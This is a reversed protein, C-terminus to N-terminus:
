LPHLMTICCISLIDELPHLAYMLAEWCPSECTNMPALFGAFACVPLLNKNHLKPQLQVPTQSELRGTSSLLRGGTFEFPPHMSRQIVTKKIRSPATTGEQSTSLPKRRLYHNNVKPQPDLTEQPKPVKSTQDKSVPIQSTQECSNEPTRDSTRTITNTSPYLPGPAKATDQNPVTEWPFSSRTPAARTIHRIPSPTWDCLIKLDITPPVTASIPLLPAVAAPKSQPLPHIVDFPFIPPM